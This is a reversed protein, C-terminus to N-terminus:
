RAKRGFAYWLGGGLATLGLTVWLWTLSKAGTTQGTVVIPEGVDVEYSPPTPTDNVPSTTIPTTANTIVNNATNQTVTPQPQSVVTPAYAKWVMSSVQTKWKPFWTSAILNRPLPQAGAVHNIVNSTAIETAAQQWANPPFSTWIIVAMAMAAQPGWLGDEKIPVSGVLRDAASPDGGGAAISIRIAPYAANFAAQFAQLSGKAAPGSAASLFTQARGQALQISSWQAATLTPTDIGTNTAM